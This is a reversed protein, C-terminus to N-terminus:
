QVVYSRTLDTKRMNMLSLDSPFPHVDSPVDDSQGLAM